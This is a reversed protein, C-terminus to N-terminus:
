KSTLKEDRTRIDFFKIGIQSGVLKTLRDSRSIRSVLAKGLSSSQLFWIIRGIGLYVRALIGGAEYLAAKSASAAVPHLGQFAAIGVCNSWAWGRALRAKESACAFNLLMPMGSLSLTYISANLDDWEFKSFISEGNLHKVSVTSAKWCSDFLIALHPFSSEHFTFGAEISKSVLKRSYILASFLGWSSNQFITGIGDRAIEYHSKESMEPSTRISVLDPEHELNELILDIAGPQVITDDALIWIYKSDIESAFGLVANGNAGVNAPLSRIRANSLGSILTQSRTFSDDPSSNDSVLLFVKSNGAVQPLLAVLQSNLITSRNYTPIYILIEPLDQPSNNM